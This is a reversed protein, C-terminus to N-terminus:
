EETFFELIGCGKEKLFIGILGHQKKNLKVGRWSIGFHQAVHEATLKHPTQIFPRLGQLKSPGEIQDFIRGKGNNIVIVKLNEPLPYCWFANKDYLFGIDGSICVVRQNNQSWAFGCATSISGDIGSTGRNGYFSGKLSAFGNAQRITMSNGLHVADDTEIEKLIDWILRTHEDIEVEILNWQSKYEVCQKQGIEQFLRGFFITPNCLIHVPATFFPDAIFSREAIHYHKIPKNNRLWEKLSKSVVSMGTTILIEPGSVSRFMDKNETGSLTNEGHMNSLVDVLVPLKTGLSNLTSKLEENPLSQGAVVLIKKSNFIEQPFSISQHASNSSAQPLNLFDFPDASIDTYIPENLPINIHVPGTNQGHSKDWASKAIMGIEDGAEKLHIDTNLHYSHVIHKEFIDKQRITQGDWRDIMAEPRDATIALLPIQQYYAECIAPYLNLVATGSTCIVACAKGTAQASGLAMFAAAREDPASLLEFDGIRLFGAVIPANRSGPCIVVRKLGVNKLSAAFFDLNYRLQSM